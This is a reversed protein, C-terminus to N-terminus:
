MINSFTDMKRIQASHNREHNFFGENEFSINVKFPQQASKARKLNGHFNKNKVSKKSKISTQVPNFDDANLSARSKKKILKKIDEKFVDKSNAM